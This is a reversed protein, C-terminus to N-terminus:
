PSHSNYSCFKLAKTSVVEIHGYEDGRCGYVCTIDLETCVEGYNHRVDAIPRVSLNLVKVLVQSVENGRALAVGM